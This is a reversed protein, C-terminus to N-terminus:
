AGREEVVFSIEAPGHVIVEYDKDTFGIRELEDAVADVMWKM